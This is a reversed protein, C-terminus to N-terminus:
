TEKDTSINVAFRKLLFHRIPWTKGLGQLLSIGHSNNEVIVLAENTSRGGLAYLVEALWDPHVRGRWTAVQRKKLRTNTRGLLRRERGWLLTLGLSM